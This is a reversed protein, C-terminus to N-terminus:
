GTTSHIGPACSGSFHFVNSIVRSKKPPYMKKKRSLRGSLLGFYKLCRLYNDLTVPGCDDELRVESSDRVLIQNLTRTVRRGSCVRKWTNNSLKKEREWEKEKESLLKGVFHLEDPESQQIGAAGGCMVLSIIWAIGGPTRAGYVINTSFKRCSWSLKKKKDIELYLRAELCRRGEGKGRSRGCFDSPISFSPRFLTYTYQVVVGVFRRNEKENREKRM